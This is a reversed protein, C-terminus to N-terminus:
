LDAAGTGRLALQVSPGVLLAFAITGVGFTGGLLIGAACATLELAIRTAGIPKGTRAALGTMLGDRPGPGLRTSLYLGSGVSVLLITGVVEAGRIALHGSTDGLLALTVDIGVGVIVANAFTGLGPRVGLPRFLVLLALSIGITTTGIPTGLRDALGEGLVTWPSNGLDSHVLLGEGAGFMALGLVLRVLTGPPAWWRSM